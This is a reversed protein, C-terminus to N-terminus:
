PLDIRHEGMSLRELVMNMVLVDDDFGTIPTEDKHGDMSIIFYRVAGVALARNAPKLQVYQKLLPRCRDDLLRAIKLNPGLFDESFENLRAMHETLALEMQPLYSPEYEEALREFTKQVSSRDLPFNLTM